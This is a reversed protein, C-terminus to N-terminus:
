CIKFYGKIAAAQLATVGYWPGAAGDVDANHNILITVIDLHGSECAAQLAKRAYSGGSAAINVDAGSHILELVIDRNGEHASLALSTWGRVDAPANVDAHAAILKEVIRLKSKICAAGLASYGWNRPPKNVDAGHQILIDVIDVFGELAAKQLPAMIRTSQDSVSGGENVDTGHKIMLTVTDLDGERVAMTLATVDMSNRKSSTIEVGYGVLKKFVDLLISSQSSETLTTSREHRCYYYASLASARLGEGQANAWSSAQSDVVLNILDYRSELSQADQLAKMSRLLFGLLMVSLQLPVKMSQHLLTSVIDTQNSRVAQEFLTEAISWDSRIAQCAQLQKQIRMLQSLVEGSTTSATLRSGDSVVYTAPYCPEHWHHDTHTVLCPTPAVEARVHALMQKSHSVLYDTAVHDNNCLAAVFANTGAKSSGLHWVDVEPCSLLLEVASHPAEFAITAQLPTLGVVPHCHNICAGALILLKMISVVWKGFRVGSSEHIQTATARIFQHRGCTAGQRAVDACDGGGWDDHSPGFAALRFQLDAGSWCRTHGARKHYHPSSSMAM